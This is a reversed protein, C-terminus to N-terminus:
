PSKDPFPYGFVAEKKETISASTFFQNDLLFDDRLKKPVYLLGQAQAKVNEAYSKDLKYFLEDLMRIVYDTKVTSDAEGYRIRMYWESLNDLFDIMKPNKLIEKACPIYKEHTRLIKTLDHVKMKERKLSMIAKLIIELSQHALFCGADIMGNVLAIRSVVYNQRAVSRLLFLHRPIEDKKVSFFPSENM